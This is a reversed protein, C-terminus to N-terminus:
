THRIVCNQTYTKMYINLFVPKKISRFHYVCKEDSLMVSTSMFDHLCCQCVNKDGEYFFFLDERPM